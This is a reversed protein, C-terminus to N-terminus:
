NAPSPSYEFIKVEPMPASGASSKQTSQYVTKYGALPELPVPCALPDTGIISYRGSKDAAIFAQAEAYTRYNKLGTVQKFKKGDPLQKEEWAMVLTSQPVVEEGDFNYLRSLMTRYYAPYFVLMPVYKNDKLQWCLEYYDSEAKNSMSAAAYFKDNPSVIRNDIVVFRSGLKQMIKGASAEDQATYFSAEDFHTIGPNAAPIRHGIRLLWYGYDSWVMVGYATAPYDYAKDPAPTKYFDYYFDAKGFPEPSNKKLWSMAELWASPPMHAPNRAVTVATVTGPILMILLALIILVVATARAESLRARKSSQKRAKKGTKEAEGAKQGSTIAEIAWGLLYGTLLAACVGFYYTFRIM